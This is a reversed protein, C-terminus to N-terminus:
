EFFQKLSEYDERTDVGGPVPEPTQSCLITHGNELFRLQELREIREFPSPEYSVFKRLAAVRYAYIGLHREAHIPKQNETDRPYPIPARSFYLAQQDSTRVVKVVNPNVFAKRDQITECLTAVSAHPNDHLLAAVHNIASAPMLPEDGQVNVVIDDDELSLRECAEFLRDTGSPHDVATMVSEIGCAQVAQVIQKDDAAVVVQTAASKAASRASQAVLPLGGLPLLMKNALRRSALRAPVIVRFKM